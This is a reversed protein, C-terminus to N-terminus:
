QAIGATEDPVREAPSPNHWAVLQSVVDGMMSWERPIRLDFVPVARVIEGLQKMKRAPYDPAVLAGLKLHQILSAVATSPAILRRTTASEATGKGPAFPALLYLASLPTRSEIFHDEIGPIGHAGSVDQMAREPRVASQTVVHKGDSERRVSSVRAAFRMRTDDCLRITGDSSWVVPPDAHEIPLADDCIHQAGNRALALALTSKGSGSNGVFAVAADGIRVASGHLWTVRDQDASMLLLRAVLDTRAADVNVARDADFVIERGNARLEFTGACSHSFRLHGEGRSLRIRCGASLQTDSLVEEGDQAGLSGLSLFWKPERGRSEALEPFPLESRLCNGLVLYDPM